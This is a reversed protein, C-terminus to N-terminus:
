ESKLLHGLVLSTQNYFIFSPRGGKQVDTQDLTIRTEDFNVIRELQGDYFYIEGAANDEPTGLRGFGLEIIIEKTSDGWMTLNQFTTWKVRREEVKEARGLNIDPGLERQLRKILKDGKRNVEETNM